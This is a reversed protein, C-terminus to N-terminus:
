LRVLYHGLYSNKHPELNVFHIVVTSVIPPPIFHTVLGLILEQQWFFYLSAIAAGIDIALKVPYVQHFLIKEKLAMRRIYHPSPLNRFVVDPLSSLNLTFFIQAGWPGGHRADQM